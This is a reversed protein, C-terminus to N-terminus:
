DGAGWIGLLCTRMKLKSCSLGTTATKNWTDSVMVSARPYLNGYCRIHESFTPDWHGQLVHLIAQETLRDSVTLIDLKRVRRGTRRDLSAAHNATQLDRQAATGPHNAM